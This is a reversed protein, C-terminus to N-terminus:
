GKKAALTVWDSQSDQKILRFGHNKLAELIEAQHSALIGGLIVYGGPKLIKAAQPLLKLLVSAVINAIIMDARKTFGSLLDGEEVRVTSQVRNRELNEKAVRVAVPDSDVAIVEAAGLLAAAIALIGSGTGVDYVIFGPKLFEELFKLAMVTTPHTGTGFAMGPDLEIIMEGPRASYDEWSPKVVLRETVKIPKYYAKWSSAWDEEEVWRTTFFAYFDPFFHELENAKERLEELRLKLLPGEPLYGRLSVRGDGGEEIILGQVGAEYFLHAVAEAACRPTTVTIEQWKM